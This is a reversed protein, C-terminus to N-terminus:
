NLLSGWETGEHANQADAQAAAKKGVEPSRPTPAPAQARRGRRMPASADGKELQDILLRVASVKGKKAEEILSLNM